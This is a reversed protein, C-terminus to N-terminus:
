SDSLSLLETNGGIASTNICVAKETCFRPLYFPGGAKPGTGSLGEGGFPQVGVVAGIMNRNIYVNGVNVNETIFDITADIRSHVGLTLGYGLHNISDIVDTLESSKYSLVHLIPGFQEGELEDLNDIKILCPSVYFGDLEDNLPAEFLLRGAQQKRQKYDNLANQAKADIVPPVDTQIQNPPGIVLEQMAQILLDIIRAAVDEQVILVRLASCRQGASHFASVIIDKVVQEALASSDAIMANQGGTEAILPAIASQRQALTQNIKWATEMSGTFAVGAIRSDSLIYQDMQQGSCPLLFVHNKSAGAKLLLQTAFHAILSTNSSPKAIVSNGSIFAAVIQGTFIALPFNWPSICVFIGRGHLNLLNNEGTPGPLQFPEAFLRKAQEVYYNCFDIAERLEAVADNLTKGAEYICLAYIEHANDQLLKAFNEIIHIRQESPTHKWSKCHQHALTLCNNIDDTNALQSTGITKNNFPSTIKHTEGQPKHDGILPRAQWQPTIKEIGDLLQQLTEYDSVNIGQSNPRAEGFLDKPLPIHPNVKIQQRRSKEVPDEIIKELPVSTDEIRNVFSTNAGNELLRRVLYPLLDEYSGVPAYIRCPYDDIVESYLSEGMGHLRQFEFSHSDLHRSLEIISALTYANHTAFQPYFEASNELLFRACAMYSIDTNVKRTFVPYNALGKEQARKIETDWYAGKVLRVPIQCQTEKALDQLWRLVHYARKQYAQVALGFGNWPKIQEDCLVSTFVDLSVDLREAEEADITLGVDLSKAMLALQKIKPTLEKLVREYQAVEYRPHLASLKISLSPASHIDPYDDRTQGITELANLYSNFYREADRKCLAAEGLMDYSFRYNDHFQKNSREIAKDINTQMVFQSGMVRMAQKLVNRVIPEGLRNVLQNVVEWPNTEGTPSQMIKGTLMLGWTSANVFLSRSQGLHTQWKAPGIKDKILQNATEDDPIRLLAEALCMLVTGEETSLDYEQIFAEITGKQNQSQRVNEVLDSARFQAEHLISSELEAYKTLSTVVQAEDALFYKNIEQRFHSELFPKHKNM